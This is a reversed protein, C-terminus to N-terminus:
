KYNNGTLMAHHHHSSRSRKVAIHDHGFRVTTAEDMETASLSLSPVISTFDMTM